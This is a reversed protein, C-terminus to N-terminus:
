LRVGSRMPREIAVRWIKNSQSCNGCGITTLGLLNRLALFSQGTRVEHRHRSQFVTGPRMGRPQWQTASPATV